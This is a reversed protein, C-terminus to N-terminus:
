TLTESFDERGIDVALLAQDTIKAMTIKRVTSPIEPFKKLDPIFCNVEPAEKRNKFEKLLPDILLQEVFVVVPYTEEKNFWWHIDNIATQIFEDVSCDKYFVKTFGMIIQLTKMRSIVYNPVTALYIFAQLDINKIEPFADKHIGTFLIPECLIITLNERM